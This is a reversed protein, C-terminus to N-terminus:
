TGSKMSKMGLKVLDSDLFLSKVNLDYCSRSIFGIEIVHNINPAGRNWLSVLLIKTFM